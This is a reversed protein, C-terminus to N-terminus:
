CQLGFRRHWFHLVVDYTRQIAAGSLITIPMVCGIFYLVATSLDSPRYVWMAGEFVIRHVLYTMYSGYAIVDITRRHLIPTVAKGLYLMLPLSALIAMEVVVEQGIVGARGFAIDAAVFLPVAIAVTLPTLMRQQLRSRSAIVGVAFPILYRPLRLDVRDSVAHILYLALCVISTVAIVRVAFYRILFVPLILYLIAILTVFWLTLFDSGLLMNSLTIGKFFTREDVLGLWLFGVSALLFPPYIRMFRRTYFSGTDTLDSFRQQGALLYGSLFCYLGLMCYALLEATETRLFHLSPSYGSLHWFGVIYLLAGGRLVDLELVRERSSVTQSNYTLQPDPKRV